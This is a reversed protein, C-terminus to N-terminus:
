IHILSLILGTKAYDSIKDLSDLEVRDQSWLTAFPKGNIDYFVNREAIAVEPMEDPLEKWFQFAPESAVVASSIAILPFLSAVVGLVLAMPILALLSPFLKSFGWRRPRETKVGQATLLGGLSVERPKTRRGM